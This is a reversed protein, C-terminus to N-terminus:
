RFILRLLWEGGACAVAFLWLVVAAAAAVQGFVLVALVTVTFCVVALVRVLRVVDAGGFLLLVLGVLGVGAFGLFIPLAQQSGLFESLSLTEASALAYRIAILVLSAIAVLDLASRFSLHLSLRARGTNTVPIPARLVSM